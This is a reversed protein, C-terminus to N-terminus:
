AAAPKSQLEHNVARELAVSLGTLAPLYMSYALSLFFIAVGFAVLSVMLCLTAIRARNLRPIPACRAYIRHDIRFTTVMAALFFIFAPIGDESAVQTYSNHTVQWAGHRGEKQAAAGETILFENPGVGFVPHLLAFQMSTELLYRRGRYSEEAETNGQSEDSFLTQYRNRVAQPLFFILVAALLPLSLLLGVRVPARARLVLFLITALFAILAGRSGTRSGILIGAVTFGWWVVRLVRNSSTLGLWLLFPLVMLLHAAYDNANSISGFGLALRAQDGVFEAGDLVNVVAALGIATMMRYCEQLTLTFGAIIFLISFNVRAYSLVSSLSDAKWNSFPCDLALWFLFLLWFQAARSHFTRQLGGGFIACITCVAGFVLVLYLDIHAHTALIEHLFSFRLFVLVLALPFGV